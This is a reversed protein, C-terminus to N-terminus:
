ISKLIEPLHQTWGQFTLTQIKRLKQRNWIQSLKLETKLPLWNKKPQSIVMGPYTELFFWKKESARGANQMKYKGIVEELEIELGDRTGNNVCINAVWAPTKHDLVKFTNEFCERYRLDGKLRTKSETNDIEM